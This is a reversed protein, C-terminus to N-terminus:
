MSVTASEMAMRMGPSVAVENRKAGGRWGLSARALVSMVVPMSKTISVVVPM